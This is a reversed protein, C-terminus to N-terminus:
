VKEEAEDLRKVMKVIKVTGNPRHVEDNEYITYGISRYLMINQPLTLRVNCYISTLGKEIAFAELFFLLKKAIGLGRKEPIVSLRFFCIGNSQFKFRVMGVPQHDMYVILGQEGNELAESVSQATELLASSPPNENKYETFAQIMLHHIIPADSTKAFKIDM